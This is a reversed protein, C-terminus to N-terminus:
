RIETVYKSGIYDSLSVEDLTQKDASAAM